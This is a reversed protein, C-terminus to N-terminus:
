GTFRPKKGKRTRRPAAAIFRTSAVIREVEKQSKGTDFAGAAPVVGVLYRMWAAHRAEVSHIAIAAALIAPSAVRAAQGKYAAAGLDELAVATRLFADPDETTGQFNFAPKAVARSGLVTKLAQVHAREVAGLQRPIRALPGTIARLREAETYFSSQLYELTLAYNLIAEDSKAAASASAPLSLGALLAAGTASSVLFARRTGAPVADLAERLAGDTDLTDLELENM